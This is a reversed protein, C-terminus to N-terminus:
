GGIFIKTKRTPEKRRAEGGNVLVWEGRPGHGYRLRNNAPKGGRLGPNSGAELWTPDTTSLAASPCTEERYKWKGQWADMRSVAGCDDGDIMLDQYFLGIFSGSINSETVIWCMTPWGEDQAM